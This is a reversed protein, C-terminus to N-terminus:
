IIPEQSKTLANSEFFPIAFPAIAPFQTKFKEKLSESNEKIFDVFKTFEKTGLALLETAKIELKPDKIIDIFQNIKSEYKEYLKPDKLVEILPSFWGSGLFKVHKQFLPNKYVELLEKLEEESFHDGLVNLAISSALEKFQKLDTQKDELSKKVTQEFPMKSFGLAKFESEIPKIFYLMSDDTNSLFNNFSLDYLENILIKKTESIKPQQSEQTSVPNNDDAHLPSMFAILSFSFATVGLFIKNM